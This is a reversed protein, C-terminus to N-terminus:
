PQAAVRRAGAAQLPQLERAIEERLPGTARRLAM